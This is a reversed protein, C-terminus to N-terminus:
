PRRLYDDQLYTMVARPLYIVLASFTM